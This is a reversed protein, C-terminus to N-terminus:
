VSLVFNGPLNRPDEQMQYMSLGAIGAGAASATVVELALEQGPVVPISDIEKYVVKNAATGVPITIRGLEIQGATVGRASRKYLVIVPATTTPATTVHFMIRRVATGELCLITKIVATSATSQTVTSDLLSESFHGQAYGM